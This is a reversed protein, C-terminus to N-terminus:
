GVLREVFILHDIRVGAFVRGLEEGHQTLCEKFRRFEKMTFIRHNIVKKSPKVTAVWQVAMLRM